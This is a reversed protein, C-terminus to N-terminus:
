LFIETKCKLRGCIGMINMMKIKYCVLIVWEILFMCNFLFETGSSLNPDCTRIGM